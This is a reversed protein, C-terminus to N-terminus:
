VYKYLLFSIATAIVAEKRGYANEAEKIFPVEM